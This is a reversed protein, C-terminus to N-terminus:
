WFCEMKKRVRYPDTLLNIIKKKLHFVFAFSLPLKRANEWKRMEEAEMLDQRKLRSHMRDKDSEKFIHRFQRTNVLDAKSPKQM